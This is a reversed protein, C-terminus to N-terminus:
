VVVGGCQRMLGASYRDVATRLTAPYLRCVFPGVLVSGPIISSISTYQSECVCCAAESEKKKKKKLYDPAGRSRGEEGVRREESRKRNFPCRVFFRAAIRASFPVSLTMSPSSANM